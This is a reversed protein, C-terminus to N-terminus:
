IQFDNYYTWICNLCMYLILNYKQTICSKSSVALYYTTFSNLTYIDSPYTVLHEVADLQNSSNKEQLMSVYWKRSIKKHLNYFSLRCYKCFRTFINSSLLPHYLITHQSNNTIFIIQQKSQKSYYLNDFLMKQIKRTM